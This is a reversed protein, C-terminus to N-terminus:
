KELKIKFKYSGSQLYVENPNMGPFSIGKARSLTKGSETVKDLAVPFRMLARCNPPITVESTMTKGDKDIEWNSIVKGRLSDYSSKVESLRLEPLYPPAILFDATHIPTDFSSIGGLGEIFWNGVYLYSSHLHSHGPSDDWNEYFTTAGRNYIMDGWSPYAKRDVMPYILDQRGANMLVRFLFAGGTIGADIHKRTKLDNELHAWTAKLAKEDAPVNALIAMAQYAQRGSGYTGKEPNYWKANVANRVEQSRQRYKQADEEIAESGGKPESSIGAESAAGSQDAPATLPATTQDDASTKSGDSNPGSMSESEDAAKEHLATSSEGAAVSDDSQTLGDEAFFDFLDLTPSKKDKRSM